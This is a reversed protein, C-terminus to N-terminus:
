GRRRLGGEPWLADLLGAGTIFFVGLIERLGFPEGALFAASVTGVSIETMFLIGLLGPNLLRGSWIVLFASTMVIFLLAPVLWPLVSIIIRPDPPSGAGSFPFACALLGFISGGLFYSLTLDEAEVTENQRLRVTFYAWILGSALAMWDGTNRPLPVGSDIGLIVMLGFFGLGFAAWRVRTIPEGLLVYGLLGGWIPTLYYLLMARVVETFILADNYLVMSTGGILGSLLLSLGGRRIFRWRWIMVPLCIILPGLFFVLSAWGGTVGAEDLARLPIWYVGWFAAGVAAMIKANRGTGVLRSSLM